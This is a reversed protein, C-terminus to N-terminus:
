PQSVLFVDWAWRGLQADKKDKVKARYRFKNGNQDTKKSEKYDLEITKLGLHKLRHLESPESIGNHNTDQWLRLYSFVTDSEKILGDGDGGNEPKDFEALALFGNRQAGAGPAPQRTFNGFLEKGNDIKGNHNRDLVLFADDSGSATWSWQKPTGKGNLDFPVGTAFNTLSFGDGEVDIIIPSGPTGPLCSCSYEDWWYENSCFQDGIYWCSDSTCYDQSWNWYWGFTGVCEEYTEPIPPDECSEDDTCTVDFCDRDDNCDDDVGNSCIEARGPNINYNDDRCDVDSCYADNDYDICGSPKPACIDGV